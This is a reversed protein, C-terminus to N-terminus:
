GKIAKRVEAMYDVGNIEWKYNYPDLDMTRKGDTYEVWVSVAYMGSGDGKGAPQLKGHKTTQPTVRFVHRKQEISIVGTGPDVHELPASLVITHSRPESLRRCAANSNPFSLSLKMSEYQGLLAVDVSGAIGAGSLTAMIATLDPLTADAVGLLEETDDSASLGIYAVDYQAM